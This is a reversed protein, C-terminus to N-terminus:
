ILGRWAVGLQTTPGPLGKSSKQSNMKTILAGPQEDKVHLKKHLRKKKITLRM